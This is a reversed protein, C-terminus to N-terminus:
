ENIEFESIIQLLIIKIVDEGFKFDVVNFEICVKVLVKIYDM